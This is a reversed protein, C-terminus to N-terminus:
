GAVAVALSRARVAESQSVERLGFWTADHIQLLERLDAVHAVSAARAVLERDTLAPDDPVVERAALSALAYRYLAHVADRPRAAALAADARALHERPDARRDRLARPLLVERRLRERTGRAILVTLVAALLVGVAGLLPFLVRVDPRPAWGFLRDALARGIAVLSLGSSRAQQQQLLERLRADAAEGSPGGSAREAAAVAADLQALAGDLDSRAVRDALPADSVTLTTGDPLRVSTTRRLLEEAVRRSADRQVGSQQRSSAVLTRAERLRAAYAPLSLEDASATAPLGATVILAILTAAILRRGSRASGRAM